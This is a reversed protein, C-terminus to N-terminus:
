ECRSPMHVFVECSKSDVENLHMVAGITNHIATESRLSNNLIEYDRRILLSLQTRVYHPPQLTRLLEKMEDDTRSNMLSSQGSAIPASDNEQVEHPEGQHLKARGGVCVDGPRFPALFEDKGERSLFPYTVPGGEPVRHLM